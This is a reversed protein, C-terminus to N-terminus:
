RNTANPNVGYMKEISRKETDAYYRAWKKGEESNSMWNLILEGWDYKDRDHSEFWSLGNSQIIETIWMSEVIVGSTEVKYKLDDVETLSLAIARVEPRATFALAGICEAALTYNYGDDRIEQRWIRHRKWYEPQVSEKLFAYAADNTRALAGIKNIVEHVIYIDKSDTVTDPTGNTLINLYCRLRETEDFRQLRQLLETKNSHTNGGFFNEYVKFDNSVPKANAVNAVLVTKNSDWNAKSQATTEGSGGCGTLFIWSALIVAGAMALITVKNLHAKMLLNKKGALQIL